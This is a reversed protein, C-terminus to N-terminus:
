WLTVLMRRSAPTTLADASNYIRISATNPTEIGLSPVYLGVDNLSADGGIFETTWAEGSRDLYSAAFTALFSGAGGTTVTPKALETVDPDWAAWAYDVVLSTTDFRFVAVPSLMGIIGAQHLLLEAVEPGLERRPDITPRRAVPVPGFASRGTRRPLGAISM